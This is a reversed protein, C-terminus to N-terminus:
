HRGLNFRLVLENLRDGLGERLDLSVSALIHRSLESTEGNSVSLLDNNAVLLGDNDENRVALVLLELLNLATEDALELLLERTSVDHDKSLAGDKGLSYTEMRKKIMVRM